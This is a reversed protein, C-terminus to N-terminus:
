VSTLAHTKSAIMNKIQERDVKGNPSLPFRKYRLLRIPLFKLHHELFDYIEDFSLNDNGTFCVVLEEKDKSQGIFAIASTIDPHQYFISELEGLNIEKKRFIVQQEIRGVYQLNHDDTFRGIDGTKYIRQEKNAGIKINIFHKKNLEENNLYGQSLGIGAVCIEGNTGQKVENMKHDLIYVKTNLLPTGVSIYKPPPSKPSYIVALTTGIAYESPGYENLLKTTPFLRIHDLVLSKPLQEGTLSICELNTGQPDVLFSTYRSPITIMYNINLQSIFKKIQKVNRSYKHKLLCLCGGSMLAYFVILLSADFCIGGSLLGRFNKPYFAKRSPYINQLNGHTVLIGKPLGTSGSTYITYALDENNIKIRLNEEDFKDLEDKLTQIVHKIDVFNLDLHMFLERSEESSLIMRPHTNSVMYKIQDIPYTPDIPFYIAGIKLIALISAIWLEDTNLCVGVFEGKGIGAKLLSLALKNSLQDLDKYTLQINQSEIAFKDSFNLVNENFMELFSSPDSNLRHNERTRAHSNKRNKCFM